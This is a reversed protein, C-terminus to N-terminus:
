PILLMSGTARGAEVDRHAEAADKLPYTKSVEIKLIGDSILKFFHACNRRLDETKAMQFSVAPRSVSLSGKAACWLLDIPPVHGSANGYNVLSGFPKVCDMSKVFTDKGVGDYVANVGEGTLRKVEAVFDTERYLIVEDCGHAKAVAAKEPSGATGIVRAGLHKVWQVLLLSVGAAAAHILITDGKKPVYMHEVISAATMGKLMSAAAQRDTVDDPLPVLRGAPVVRQEAYAGTHHYFPGFMGVYGARDGPKFETVGEGVADVVGAAENGPTLPMKMPEPYYFGGRRVNIDSFNIGIATHRLRVEGPGPEPLDVDVWELVEPGGHQEIRIAKM